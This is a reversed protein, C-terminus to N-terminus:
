LSKELLACFVVKNELVQFENDWLSEKIFINKIDLYFESSLIINATLASFEYESTGELMLNRLKTTIKNKLRNNKEKSYIEAQEYLDELFESLKSGIEFRKNVLRQRDNLNINEITNKGKLNKSKSYLRYDKFYLFEKPNDVRPNIIPINKTDLNGKSINCRKCSPLLNEWKVVDDPYISKPYFHEVELYKSEEMLKTECYCCKNHSMKLLSERIYTKNWVDTKTLKFENTLTQIIDETLEKPKDIVELKIM